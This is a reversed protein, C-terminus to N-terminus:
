RTVAEDYLVVALLGLAVIGWVWSPVATGWVYVPFWSTTAALLVLRRLNRLVLRRAMRGNSVPQVRGRRLVARPVVVLQTSSTEFWSAMRNVVRKTSTTAKGRLLGLTRTGEAAQGPIGQLHPCERAWDYLKPHARQVEYPM